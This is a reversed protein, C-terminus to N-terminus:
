VYSYKGKIYGFYENLAPALETLQLAHTLSIATDWARQNHRLILQYDPLDRLTMECEVYTLAVLMQAASDQYETHLAQILLETYAENFEM